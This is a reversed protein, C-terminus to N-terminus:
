GGSIWVRLSLSAFISKSEKEEKLIDESTHTRMKQYIARCEPCGEIHERVMEMSTESCAEDVYLPLLDQVIECQKGM